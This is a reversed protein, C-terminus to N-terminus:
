AVGGVREREGERERRVVGEIHEIRAKPSGVSTEKEPSPTPIRALSAAGRGRAGDRPRRRARARRDGEGMCELCALWGKQREVERGCEISERSARGAMARRNRENSVGEIDNRTRVSPPRRLGAGAARAAPGAEPILTWWGRQSSMVSQTQGQTTGGWKKAASDSRKKKHYKGVTKHIASPLRGGLRKASPARGVPTPPPRGGGCRNGYRRMLVGVRPGPITSRDDFQGDKERCASGKGADM